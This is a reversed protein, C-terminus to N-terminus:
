LRYKKCEILWDWPYPEKMWSPPDAFESDWQYTLRELATITLGAEKLMVQLESGLYHKTPVGDIRIIGQLLDLKKGSFYALESAPIQEPPTGERKYWDIMRWASFLMSDTSPVVILASANEKMAKQLNIFMRENKEIEPLMIVNCCFVFDAEPLSIKKASLDMRKFSLNSFPRKKAERICEASIDVGLVEKFAPALYPLAKGTGCGFDIATHNANRHKRFYYGLRGEKDSKFVDFIEENYSPAIKDWHEKENM